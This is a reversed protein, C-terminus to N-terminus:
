DTGAGPQSRVCAGESEDAIIGSHARAGICESTNDEAM